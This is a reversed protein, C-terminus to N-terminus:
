FDVGVWEDAVGAVVLPCDHKDGMLPDAQLDGARDFFEVLCVDPETFRDDLSTKPLLLLVGVTGSAHRDRLTGEREDVSVGL